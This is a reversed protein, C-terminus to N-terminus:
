VLGRDSISRRDLREISQASRWLKSWGRDNNEMLSGASELERDLLAIWEPTLAKVQDVAPMELGLDNWQTNNFLM